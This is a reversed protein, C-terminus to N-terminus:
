PGGGPPTHGLRQLAEDIRASMNVPSWDQLREGRGEGTSVFLTPTGTVGLQEGLRLNATVVDAHRDSGLCSRFASRDLGLDGAYGVFASFPDAQRAWESQRRFLEDHFPWYADQDGACRAARAAFFAHAHISMLPFDYYVFRVHGERIYPDELFPKAQTAFAQCSPCQYDSFDMITVPADPDGHEIGRAMQVLEQADGHELPVPARAGEGTTTFLVNWAIVGAVILGVVLLIRRLTSSDSSSGYGGGGGQQRQRRRKEVRNSM